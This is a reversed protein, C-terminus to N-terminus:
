WLPSSRNDARKMNVDPLCHRGVEGPPASQIFSAVTAEKSGMTVATIENKQAQPRDLHSCTYPPYLYTAANSTPWMDSSLNGVDSAGGKVTEAQTHM